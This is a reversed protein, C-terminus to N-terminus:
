IHENPTEDDLSYEGVFILSEDCINNENELAALNDVVGRRYNSTEGELFPDISTQPRNEFAVKDHGTQVGNSSHQPHHFNSM